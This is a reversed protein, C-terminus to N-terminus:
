LKRLSLSYSIGHDGSNFTGLQTLPIGVCFGEQVIDEVSITDAQCLESYTIGRNSYEESSIDIQFGYQITDESRGIYQVAWYMNGNATYRYVYFIEDYALCM